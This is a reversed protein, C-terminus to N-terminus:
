ASGGNGTKTHDGGSRDDDGSVGDADADEGFRDIAEAQRETGSENLRERSTEAAERLATADASSLSGFGDRWDGESEDILRDILDTFSEGDRKRARLRDYVEERVGITKTGM